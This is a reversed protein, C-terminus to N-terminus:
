NMNEMERLGQSIENAGSFILGFFMIAFIISIIAVIVFWILTAKAYNSKNVNTGDSFAWVFLMVIGVLPIATILMTILWDKITMVSNDVPRGYFQQQDEM